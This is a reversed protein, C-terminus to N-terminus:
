VKLFIEKGSTSTRDIMDGSVLVQFEKQDEINQMMCDVCSIADKVIDIAVTSLPIPLFKSFPENNTGIIKIDEPVKFGCDNAMKIVHRAIVDNVCYIADVENFYKRINYMPQDRFLSFKLLFRKAVYMDRKKLLQKMLRYRNEYINYYESIVGIRNCGLEVFKDAVKEIMKEEDYVVYNFKSLRNEYFSSGYFAVSLGRRKIDLGYKKLARFNRMFIVGKLGPYLVDLTDIKDELDASDLALITYDPYKNNCEILAAALFRLSVMDEKNLSENLDSIILITYRRARPAIFSGCGVRSYVIGRKQLELLTRKATSQSINFREIFEKVSPIPTNVPLPAYEKELNDAIEMFKKSKPYKM